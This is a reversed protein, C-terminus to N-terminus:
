VKSYQMLTAWWCFNVFNVFEWLVLPITIGYKYQM